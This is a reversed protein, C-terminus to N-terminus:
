KLWLGTDATPAKFRSIAVENLMFSRRAEVRASMRLLLMGVAADSPPNALIMHPAPWDPARIITALHRNIIAGWDGGALAYSM